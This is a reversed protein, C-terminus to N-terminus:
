LRLTCVAPSDLALAMDSFQPGDQLREHPLRLYSVVGEYGYDLIPETDVYGHVKFPSSLQTNRKKDGKNVTPFLSYYVNLLTPQLYM